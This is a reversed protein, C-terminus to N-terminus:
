TTKMIKMIKVMCTSQLNKVTREDCWYGNDNVVMLGFWMIM